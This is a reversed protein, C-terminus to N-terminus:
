MNGAMWYAVAFGAAALAMVILYGVIGGEQAAFDEETLGIKPSQRCRRFDPKRSLRL